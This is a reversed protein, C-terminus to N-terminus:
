QFQWVWLSIVICMLMCICTSEDAASIFNIRKKHWSGRVQLTNLLNMWSWFIVLNCNTYPIEVNETNEQCFNSTTFTLSVLWCDWMKLHLWWILLTCTVLTALLTARLRSSHLQAAIKPSSHWYIPEPSYRVWSESQTAWLPESHSLWGFITHTLQCKVQMNRNCRAADGANGGREEDM